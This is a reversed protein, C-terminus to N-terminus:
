FYFGLICSESSFMAVDMRASHAVTWVSFLRYNDPVRWWVSAGSLQRRKVGTCLADCYVAQDDVDIGGGAVKEM